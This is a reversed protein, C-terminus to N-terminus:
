GRRMEAELAAAKLKTELTKADMSEDIRVLVSVVDSTRETVVALESEPLDGDVVVLLPRVIAMREVATAASAARMTPLPACASSCARAQEDRLAVLLVIPPHRAIPTKM